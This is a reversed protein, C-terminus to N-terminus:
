LSIRAPLAPCTFGHFAVETAQCGLQRHPMRRLLEFEADSRGPVARAQWHRSVGSLNEELGNGPNASLNNEWMGVPSKTSFQRLATKPKNALPINIHHSPLIM